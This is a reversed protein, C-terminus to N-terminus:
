CEEFLVLLNDAIYTPRCPANHINDKKAVGTLVLLSDINLKCAVAIDTDLRDGIIISKELEIRDRKSLMNIMFTNPKGITAAPRKGVATAVAAVMTGAGPIVEDGVPLLADENTAIFLAGKLIHRVANTLKTYNFERDLGVVVYDVRDVSKDAYYVDFGMQKFEEYLGKEGIILVKGKGYVERIYYATAYASNIVQDVNVKLSMRHLKRVYDLRSRTSNNSIFYVYKGLDMLKKIAIINEHIPKDGRWVVGDLDLLYYQYKQYEKRLKSMNDNCRKFM